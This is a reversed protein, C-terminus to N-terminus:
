PPAGRSSALLQGIVVVVFVLTLAGILNLGLLNAALASIAVLVLTLFRFWLPSSGKRVGWFRGLLELADRRSNSM